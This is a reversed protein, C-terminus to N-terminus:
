QASKRLKQITTTEWQRAEKEINELNNIITLLNPHKNTVYDKGKLELIRKLEEIEPMLKNSLMKQLKFLEKEAYVIHGERINYFVIEKWENLKNYHINCDFYFHCQNACLGYACMYEDSKRSNECTALVHPRICCGATLQRIPYHSNMFKVVDKVVKIKMEEDISNYNSNNKKSSADLDNAYIDLMSKNKTDLIVSTYEDGKPGLVVTEDDLIDSIVLNTYEDNEKDDVTREYYDLMKEDHHGFVKAIQFSSMGRRKLESDVYVRFQKLIPINIYENCNNKLPKGNFRKGPEKTINGLEESYDVCIETFTKKVLNYHLDGCLLESPAVLSQLQKIAKITEQTTFTEVETKGNGYLNKTTYYRLSFMEIGHKSIDHLCDFPIMMLEYPRIGTQTSLYILGASIRTEKSFLKDDKYLIIQLRKILKDMFSQSLLSLKAQEAEIRVKTTNVTNLLEIIREDIEIQTVSHYFIFLKKISSKYKNLTIEKVNVTKFHEIMNDVLVDELSIIGNKNLYNIFNTQQLFDKKIVPRHLGHQFLENLLYLKLLTQYYDTSNRTANFNYIYNNKISENNQRDRPIESTFDWIEDSFKFNVNNLKISDTKISELFVTQIATNKEAKTIIDFLGYENINLSNQKTVTTISKDGKTLIIPTYDIDNYTKLNIYNLQEM